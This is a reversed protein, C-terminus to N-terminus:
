NRMNRPILNLLGLTHPVSVDILELIKSRIEDRVHQPIKDYPEGKWVYAIRRSPFEYGSLCLTRECPVGSYSQAIPELSNGDFVTVTYFIGVANENRGDGMGGSADSTALVFADAIGPKAISKLRKTVETATGLTTDSSTDAGEFVSIDYLFPRIVYRPGLEAVIRDRVIRSIDWDVPFFTSKNNFVTLGVYSLNIRKEFAAIVAISKIQALREPSNIHRPLACGAVAFITLIGVVRVAFSAM